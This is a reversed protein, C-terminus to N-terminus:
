RWGSASPRSSPRATPWRYRDPFASACRACRTNPEAGFATPCGCFMKTETGLEVHVELGMVPDFDANVQDYDLLETTASTM